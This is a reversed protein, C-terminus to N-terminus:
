RLSGGMWGQGGELLRYLSSGLEFGAVRWVGMVEFSRGAVKVGVGKKM